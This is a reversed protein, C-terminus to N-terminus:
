WSKICSELHNEGAGCGASQAKEEGPLSPCVMMGAHM